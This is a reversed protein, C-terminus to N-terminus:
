RSAALARVFVRILMAEAVLVAPDLPEPPRDHNVSPTGASSQVNRSSRSRVVFM